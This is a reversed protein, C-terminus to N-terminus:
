FDFRVGLDAGLDGNYDSQISGSLRAGGLDYDAGLGFSTDAGTADTDAVYARVTTAGMTYNGYLTIIRDASGDADFDFGDEKIYNLGVNAVDSVAYAAGIFAGDNGDIGAGNQYAGLSVSFPGSAYDFSVATEENSGAGLTTYQDPTIYSLRGTFSGMSYSAFIGMYGPNTVNGAAGYWFFTGMPDGYSTDMFGMESNYLLGASDFANNVNGVEMRFGEYSAFLLASQVLNATQGSTHQLRLRGGFTVGTDTETTADLNLRLRTHITTENVGPVNNEQYVLGFRGYGSISVGTEAAAVTATSALLTTALLIKKM